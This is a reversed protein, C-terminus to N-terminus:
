LEQSIRAECEDVIALFEHAHWACLMGFTEVREALVDVVELILPFNERVITATRARLRPYSTGFYSQFDEGILNALLQMHDLMKSYDSWSEKFASDFGRGVESESEAEAMTGAMLVVIRDESYQVVDEATKLHRNSTAGSSGEHDGTASSVGIRIEGVIFGLSKAILAHAVEHRALQTVLWKLDAPILLAAQQESWPLDTASWQLLRQQQEAPLLHVMSLLERSKKLAVKSTGTVAMLAQAYQGEEIRAIFQSEQEKIRRDLMFTKEAFPPTSLSGGYM